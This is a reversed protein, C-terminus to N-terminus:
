SESFLYFKTQSFENPINIFSLRDNIFDDKAFFINQYMYNELSPHFFRLHELGFPTIRYLCYNLDDLFHFVNKLSEGSLQWAQSYEFFGIVSHNLLLNKAGRLVSPESGEVDIKLFFVSDKPKAIKLNSFFNDFTDINVVYSDFDRRFSPNMDNRIFLSSVGSDFKHIYFDNKSTNDSLALRVLKHSSHQANLNLNPEFGYILCSQNFESVKLAHEGNNYGVDFYFSCFSIIKEILSHEGNSIPDGNNFGNLYNHNRLLNRSNLFHSFSPNFDSKTM